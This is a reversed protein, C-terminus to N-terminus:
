KWYNQLPGQEGYFPDLSPLAAQHINRYTVEPDNEDGTYLDIERSDPYAGMVQFIDDSELLRHGVGAPILIIDGSAVHVVKGQPGGLQLSASGRMVALVEHSNSHFHHYSFVSGYWFNVWNNHQFIKELESLYQEKISYLLVPLSPNNPIKGNDDFFLRKVGDAHKNIM